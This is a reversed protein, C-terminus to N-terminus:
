VKSISNMLRLEKFWRKYIGLDRTLLCDARSIAHAAVLFDAMVHTRRAIRADCFPCVVEVVKGCFACTLRDGKQKKTYEAWRTGAMALSEKATEVLRIGTDVLFADLEAMGRFGAALEAYVVECIVLAGEAAQRELLAKSSDRFAEGPILLDLLINTDIATTM